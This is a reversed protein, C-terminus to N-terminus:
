LSSWDLFFYRCFRIGVGVYGVYVFLYFLTSNIKVSKIKDLDYIFIIKGIIINFYGSEFLVM